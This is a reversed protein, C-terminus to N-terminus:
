QRQQAFLWDIVAPDRYAPTWSDHGVGQLESYTPRGGAAKVANVMRRSREVPVADDADGHFCWIPLNAIRAATAEDGGGCIPLIATFKGPFRAALDWTGYGGMSLGTLYLHAPDAPETQLVDDVAAIAAALDTTPEPSQTDSAPNSWDIDVWKEGERCQPAVLFCPHRSRLPAEGMWTPFYQLQRKNDNGREGAGHLFLVVPYTTAPEITAPRLLRYHFEVPKGHDTVTVSRSEYGKPVAEEAQLNAHTM